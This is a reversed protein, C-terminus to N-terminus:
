IEDRAFVRLSLALRSTKGLPLSLLEERPIFKLPSARILACGRESILFEEGAGEGVLFNLSMICSKGELHSTERGFNM